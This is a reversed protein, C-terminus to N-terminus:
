LGRTKDPDFGLGEVQGKQEKKMGEVVDFAPKGGYLQGVTKAGGGGGGELEVSSSIPANGRFRKRMDIM